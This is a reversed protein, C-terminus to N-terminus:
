KKCPYKANLYIMIISSAQKDRIGPNNKLYEGVMDGIQGRTIKDDTCVAFGELADWVGTVYGLYENADILDKESPSAQEARISAKYLEYLENGTIFGAKAPLSVVLVLALLWKKM